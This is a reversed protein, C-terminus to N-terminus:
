LAFVSRLVVARAICCGVGPLKFFANEREEPGPPLAKQDVELLWVTGDGATRIQYIWGDGRTINATVSGANFLLTANGLPAGDVTGKWQITRGSIEVNGWRVTLNANPFFNMLVRQATGQRSGRMRRAADDDFLQTRVVAARIRRVGRDRLRDPISPRGPPNDFARVVAGAAAATALMGLACTVRWEVRCAGFM